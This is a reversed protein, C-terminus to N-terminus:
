WSPGWTSGNWTAGISSSINPFFFDTLSTEAAQAQLLCPPPKRESVLFMLSFLLAGAPNLLRWNSVSCVEPMSYQHASSKSSPFWILLPFLLPQTHWFFKNVWHPAFIYHIPFHHLRIWLPIFLLPTLVRISRLHLFRYFGFATAVM